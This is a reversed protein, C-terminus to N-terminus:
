VEDKVSEDATPAAGPALRLALLFRAGGSPAPEYRVTGGMAEALERVLPLGVSASGRGEAQAFLTAAREPAVGPGDDTVAVVCQGGSGRAAVHVRTGPPTHDAVNELLNFVIRRIGERNAVVRLEPVDATLTHRDLRDALALRCDEVVPALRVPEPRAEEVADLAAADALEEVAAELQSVGLRLRAMAEASGNGAPGGTGLLAALRELEALRGRVDEGARRVYGRRRRGRARVQEAEVGAVAILQHLRSAYTGALYGVSILGAGSALLVALRDSLDPRHLVHPTMGLEEFGLQAFGLAVCFLTFGLASSPGLLLGASVVVIAYILVLGSGTGGFFAIAGALVVADAVLSVTVLTRPYAESRVFYLTTVVALIPVGLALPWVDWGHRLALVVVVVFWAIGGVARVHGFRRLLEDDPRQLRWDGVSSQPTQM